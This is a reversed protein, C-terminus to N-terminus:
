RQPIWLPRLQLPPWSRPQEWSPFSQRWVLSGPPQRKFSWRRCKSNTRRWLSSGYVIVDPLLRLNWFGAASFPSVRRSPAQSQRPPVSNEGFVLFGRHDALHHYGFFSARHSLLPWSTPPTIWRRAITWDSSDAFGPGDPDSVRPADSWAGGGRNRILRWTPLVTRTAAIEAHKKLRIPRALYKSVRSQPM